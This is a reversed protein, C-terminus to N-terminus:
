RGIALALILYQDLERRPHAEAFARVLCFALAHGQVGVVDLGDRSAHGLKEAVLRRGRGRAESVGCLDRAFESDVPIPDVGVRTIEARSAEAAIVSPPAEVERLNASVERARRGGPM